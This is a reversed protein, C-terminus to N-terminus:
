NNQGYYANPGHKRLFHKEVLHAPAPPADPKVQRTYLAMKAVEELVAAHYVAEAASKGWAFPGHSRCVVGPVFAPDIRRGLFTEM